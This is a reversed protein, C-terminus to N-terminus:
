INAPQNLGFWAELLSCWFAIPYHAFHAIYNNSEELSRGSNADDTNQAAKQLISNQQNM